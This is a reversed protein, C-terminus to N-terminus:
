PIIIDKEPGLWVEFMIRIKGGNGLFWLIVGNSVLEIDVEIDHCVGIKHTTFDTWDRTKSVKIGVKELECILKVAM